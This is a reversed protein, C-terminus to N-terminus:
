AKLKATWYLYSGFDEIIDNPLLELGAQLLQVNTPQYPQHLPKMAMGNEKKTNCPVCASAINTWVTKGGKSKPIVHDFTLDGADFKNGCYQCQYRDRLYISRRTFKPKGYVPVYERLMMVKPVELTTSPSRFFAEKWTDVVIAKDRCVTSIADYVSVIHLPWTSLPRGDANLVLCRLSDPQRRAAQQM